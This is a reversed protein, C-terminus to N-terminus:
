PPQRSWRTGLGSEPPSPTPAVACSRTPATMSRSFPHFWAAWRVWVLPTSLLKAPLESPLDTSSNHNSNSFAYGHCHFTHFFGGFQFPDPPSNTKWGLVPRFAGTLGIPTTTTFNACTMALSKFLIFIQAPLPHSKPRANSGRKDGRKGSSSPPSSSRQTSAAPVTPDHSGRANWLIDAAKVMAATMGHTGAGVTERMSPPLRILFMALFLDNDPSVGPPLHQKLKRMLVSPKLDQMEMPLCLLEFYSQWKSKGLQGLLTNKLFDRSMQTAASMLLTKFTGFSKSTCAPLSTPMNLNKCNSEQRQLSPRSSVSGFIRNRRM